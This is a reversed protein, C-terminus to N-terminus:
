RGYLELTREVMRHESFRARVRRSAEEALAHAAAPRGLVWEIKAALSVPDGPAVLLGTEGDVVTERIGGVPSAVVPVGAAQAEIVALCLGEYLSPLAFCDLSALVDPVDDRAGTFLVHHSIGLERSREELEARLQGDGVIAFRVGPRRDLVLRAAELLTRHGKQPALRAITGVLPGDKPLSPRGSAFRDLDIGLEVVHTRLRTRGDRERDTQSTYIVDPRLAFGLRFWAKGTLNDRRPLEPTHHTLLLEPVRAARAALLAPPWVDTVHALRPRLRRLLAALRAALLPAPSPPVVITRLPLREFPEVGTHVLVAEEASSTAALGRALAEVYREVAGWAQAGHLLVIM